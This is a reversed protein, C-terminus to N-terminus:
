RRNRKNGGNIKVGQEVEFDKINTEFWERKNNEELNMREPEGGDNREM